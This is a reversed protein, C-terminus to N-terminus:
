DFMNSNKSGVGSAISNHTGIVSGDRFVHQLCGIFYLPRSVPFLFFFITKENFQVNFLNKKKSKSMDGLIWKESIIGDTPGLHQKGGHSSIITHMNKQAYDGNTSEAGPSIRINQHSVSYVM